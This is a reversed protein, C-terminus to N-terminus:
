LHSQVCGIAQDAGAVLAAAQDPDLKGTAGLTEAKDRFQTLKVIADAPKGEDLKVQADTLKEILGAQDGAANKGTFTASATVSQLESIQARCADFESQAKAASAVAFLAVMVVALSRFLRM